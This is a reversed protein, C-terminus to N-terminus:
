IGSPAFSYRQKARPRTRGRWLYRTDLAFSTALVALAAGAVMASLPPALVPALCGILAIVQLACIARRRASRPLPRALVRWVLGAALFAYRMLGSLLVWPGAKDLSWVLLALILIFAADLEMDFRAGFASREGRRRAVSGDVGDLALALLALGLMGWAVAPAAPDAIMGGLLCIILGRMLTIRNALGFTAHSRLSPLFAIVMLALGLYLSLVKAVFLSPGGSWAAFGAALGALLGGGALLHVVADAAAPSRRIIVGSRM